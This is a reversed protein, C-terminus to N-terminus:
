NVTLMRTPNQITLKIQLEKSLRPLIHEFCYAFRPHECIKPSAEFGNFFLADHSLIIQDEYGIRCLELITRLKESIYKETTDEYLRDLGIFCGYSAITKVFEIDDTDSLHGVTVAEARVDESLLIELAEKANKNNANTHMVIPIGTHLHAKACSRLLKKQFEGIESDEVACKIIGANVNTADSIIFNCLEKLSANYLVPEDTYYFGTSCIINIGSRESVQKLLKTNRGINVPTCDIFTNLGYIKGLHRLYEGATNILKETDLYATGAMMYAYESYCCIHEHSLTIGIEQETIDGLVTRYHPM